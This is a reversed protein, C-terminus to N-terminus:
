ERRMVTRVADALMKPDNTPINFEDVSDKKAYGISTDPSEEQISLNGGIFEKDEGEDHSAVLDINEGLGHDRQDSRTDSELDIQSVEPVFTKILFGIGLGLISFIILGLFMRWVMTSFSVGTILGVFFVLLVAIVALAIGLKIGLQHEALFNGSSARPEDNQQQLNEMEENMTM